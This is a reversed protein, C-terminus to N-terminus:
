RGVVGMSNIIKDLMEDYTTMARAAANYAHQFKIMNAMEEDTSVGSVSQRRSDVQEALIKQNTAQRDAEQSQVGLQGVIARFFEDFTGNTLIPIGTSLPDFDVKMNRLDSALLAITNNGKVLTEKGDSDKVINGASDTMVRSSAVLKSVNSIIDPNLTLSAATFETAGAKMTFFPIGATPPNEMSYGLGHIGNLGKVSLETDAKLVRQSDTLVETGTYTVGNLVTGAPLKSPLVSGAPMTIKVTGEALAKVMSDMQFQYSALYTERSEIMGFVEGSKLDGNKYADDFTLGTTGTSSGSGSAPPTEAFNTAVENGEVLMVSGMKVNYGGASKEVTVNVISSLQDVLLDRQDSLDNADNGLGEVRFIEGNLRAIQTLITNSEKVKVRINETIDNRLENLQTATHNFSDTMALASEKLAARATTNEPEKSFVQWSNWFNEIVQRIGTDSPENTIAELKELADKRVSWNGLEKNENYFQHDLFAERVRKISDFEVGQGLQGPTTSRTFSPAELPAAATFNVVQRSYGKTNANAINHGTTSLATQQSFLARKAIEIGGFTSGM